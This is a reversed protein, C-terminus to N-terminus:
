RSAGKKREALRMSNIVKDIRGPASPRSSKADFDSKPLIKFNYGENMPIRAHRRMSATEDQTVGDWLTLQSDGGATSAAAAAAASKNSSSPNTQHKTPTNDAKSEIEQAADRASRYSSRLGL